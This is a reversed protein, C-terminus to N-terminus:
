AAQPAPALEFVVTSNPPMKYDSGQSHTSFCSKNAAFPTRLTTNVLAKWQGGGAVAPLTFNVWNGHGNFVALLRSERGVPALKASTKEPFPKNNLMMGFCLNGQDQWDQETRPRTPSYWTLDQVGDCDIKNGHPFQARNLVAMSKRIDLMYRWFGFVTKADNGKLNSWDLWSTANDQCYANNNGKQTQLMEDGMRMLLPGHALTASAIMNFIRKMRRRIVTEDSTPGSAGCNWSRENPGDKNNEGNAQNHRNNYEFVDRLTFGDHSTLKNVSHNARPAFYPNRKVSLAAAGDGPKEALRRGKYKIDTNFTEAAGALGAALATSSAGDLWFKRVGDRFKDSWEYAITPLNGIQYGGPGCDWPEGSIKVPRVDSGRRKGTLPDRGAAVAEIAKYVPADRNYSFGNFCDRGMAAMLDFRFGSIRYQDIFHSLSDTILRTVVPHSANVMNGCGTDNIYKSKDTPCLAYYTANDIGRFSLTPGYENGEATHNYVVDMMVELGAKNLDRVMRRFEDPDNGAMYDPAPTFFNISNYKWYNSLGRQTLSSEEVSMHVPMLQVATCIKKLHEISAPAALGAYTGRLKEPVDQKLKTFGKVHAEYLVTRSWPTVPRPADQWDFLSPGTVVAKAMYPASDATNVAAPDNPDGGWKYAFLAENFVIKGMTQRAYPDLLLKNKNFRHGNAPDFPGDVRYGYVQGPKAGPVFGTWMNTAPDRALAVRRLERAGKEDFLCLEVGTANASYLTFQVGNCDPDWVAGPAQHTTEGKEALQQDM